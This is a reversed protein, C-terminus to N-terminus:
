EFTEPRDDSENNKSGKRESVVSGLAFAYKDLSINSDRKKGRKQIQDKQSKEMKRKFDGANDPNMLMCVKATLETAGLIIADQRTSINAMENRILDNEVIFRDFLDCDIIHNKLDTRLQKFEQFRTKFKLFYRWFRLNKCFGKNGKHNYYCRWINGIVAAASNKLKDKLKLKKLLFDAQKQKNDYNIFTGLSVVIISVVIVGWICLAFAVFRGSLTKPYYDGYGITTM